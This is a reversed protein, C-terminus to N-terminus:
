PTTGKLKQIWNLVKPVNQSPGFTVYTGDASRCGIDYAYKLRRFSNVRGMHVHKGKALARKTVDVAVPGLKFDNTGGLFVVDIQSWPIRTDEVGDQAVYAVPYGLERIPKLWPKSKELTGAADGVIDPATAFMCRKLDNKNSHLFKWWKEEVWNDSFAGNDACWIVGPPRKNGQAPTDIYGLTHDHMHPMAIRTPNIFYLM